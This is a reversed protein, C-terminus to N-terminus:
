GARTVQSSFWQSSRKPHNPLASSIKESSWVRTSRNRSSLRAADSLRTSKLASTPTHGITPM